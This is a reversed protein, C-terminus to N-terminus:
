SAKRAARAARDRSISALRTVIGRAVLTLVMKELKDQRKPHDGISFHTRVSPGGALKGVATCTVRVVHEKQQVQFEVVKVSAEIRNDKHEGWNANKSEKKLVSRLTRERRRSRKDEPLEVETWSVRTPKKQKASAAGSAGGIAILTAAAGFLQLLERRSPNAMPGHYSM